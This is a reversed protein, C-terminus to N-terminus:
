RCIRPCRNHIRAWRLSSSWPAPSTVWLWMQESWKYFDCNSNPFFAISNAPKVIGNPTATGSQFWGNFETQSLPCEDLTQPLTDTALASTPSLAALGILALRLAYRM